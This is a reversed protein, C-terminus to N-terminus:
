LNEIPNLDSSQAPWPLSQHLNEEKWGKTFRTAHALANDDQFTYSNPGLENLFPLLYRKLLEVYKEANLKGEILVLPGVKFNYFCKWVMVGESKQVTLILYDKAYAKHVENILTLELYNLILNM